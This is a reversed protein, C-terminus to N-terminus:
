TRVVGALSGLKVQSSTHVCLYNSQGFHSLRYTPSTPHLVLCDPELIRVKIQLMMEIYINFPRFEIIPLNSIQDVPIMKSM